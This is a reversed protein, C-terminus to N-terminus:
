APAGGGDLEEVLKKLEVELVLVAQKLEPYQSKGDALMGERGIFELREARM